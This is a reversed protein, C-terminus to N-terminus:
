NLSKKHHLFAILDAGGILIGRENCAWDLFEEETIDTMSDLMVKAQSSVDIKAKRIM